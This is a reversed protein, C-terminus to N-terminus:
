IQRPIFDTRPDARLRENRTVRYATLPESVGEFECLAPNECVFVSGLLKRTSATVHAATIVAEGIATQGNGVLVLGTAIAIRVQLPAGSHSLLEGVKAVLDLGAHVAREADDQHGEPYGFLALIEDGVSNTVAGGWRTIVTACIEQFCHFTDGLEEPGLGVAIAMSGVLSCSLATLQRKELESRRSAIRQDPANAPMAEALTSGNLWTSQPDTRQELEIAPLSKEDDARQPRVAFKYGVGPVSLIFRPEKPDLEIKRRLRAVLMDVGRGHAEAEHGVVAHRLQDRSLVRCPNAVFAALLATEARTLPVERGNGDVFAHGALDFQCDKIGVNAPARTAEDDVSASAAMPQSLWDLLKQEDLAPAPYVNAGRLSHDPRVTQDEGLLITRPVKDRLERGLGALETSHVLIAAEIEEGMALELARKRSEALEVAYGASLLARAIRARLEIEPAVILIRKRTCLNRGV